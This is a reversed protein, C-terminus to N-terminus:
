DLWASGACPCPLTNAYTHKHTGRLLLILALIPGMERQGGTNREKFMRRRAATATTTEEPEVHFCITDLTILPCAIADGIPIIYVTLELLISIFPLYRITDNSTV